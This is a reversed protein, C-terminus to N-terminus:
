VIVVGVIGIVIINAVVLPLYARANSQNNTQKNTYERSRHHIADRTQDDSPHRHISRISSVNSPHRTMRHRETFRTKM